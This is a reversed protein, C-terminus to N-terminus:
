GAAEPIAAALFIGYLVLFVIDKIVPVAQTARDRTAVLAIVELVFFVIALFFLPWIGSWWSVAEPVAQALRWIWLLLPMLVLYGYGVLFRFRTTTRDLVWFTLFFLVIHLFDWFMAAYDAEAPSWALNLFGLVLLFVILDCMLWERVTEGTNKVNWARSAKDILLVLATGLSAPYILRLMTALQQAPPLYAWNLVLFALALLLLGLLGLGAHTATAAPEAAAPEGPLATARTEGLTRAYLFVLFALLGLGGVVLMVVFFVLTRTGSRWDAAARPPEAIPVFQWVVAAAVVLLLIVALILEYAAPAQPRSRRLHRAVLLVLFAVIALAAIGGMVEIFEISRSEM